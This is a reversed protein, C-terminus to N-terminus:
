NHVFIKFFTSTTFTNDDNFMKDNSMKHQMKCHFSRLIMM